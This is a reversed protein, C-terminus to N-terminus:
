DLYQYAPITLFAEFDPSEILRDLIEAADAYRGVSRGGLKELEEDRVQQYREVTVHKGDTTAVSHRIWQWIQARSIEATAADEMLNNIGAAGNGRLWNDVYQLGVSVNMRLGDETITSGPIEVDLLAEADPIVDDRQKGVQNPQDGLVGDFIELAIPVLGPHAVWTGDFGANAERSKDESVAAYARENVEADRRSPIFASMGGIAHAGRKHCTKVLLEAYTRMFPVAMTVQARDPLIHAPSEREIKILSFIYDWRGANLGSSHDRLEYLIEEMEFAALITEVLVTARISGQPLGLKDQAYVFVDNWLRAELHSELKPLYFYPGAGRDLLEQGNNFLYLGFDFLSASCEEDDVLMHGETLHWGRPRLLLTAPNDGLEYVKGDAQEFRITGRVAEALNQQGTTENFWTPSLADEHDAMFVKAGSNLANILMKKDTPGTIEVRRDRLAAPAPAVSWDGDRVAATEPLFGPALGNRIASHRSERANLLEVRRPNFERQLAAVFELAEPTVAGAAEEPVPTTLTFTHAM